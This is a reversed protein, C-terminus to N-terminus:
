CKVKCLEKANEWYQLENWTKSSNHNFPIQKQQIIKVTNLRDVECGTYLYYITDPLVYRLNDDSITASHCKSDVYRTNHITRIGDSITNDGPLIFDDLQPEVYIMFIKNRIDAPPDVFIADTNFHDYWKFHHQLQPSGRQFIGNIIDFDGSIDRNSSDLQILLPNDYKICSESLMCSKSLAIGIKQNYQVEEEEEAYSYEILCGGVAFGIAGFIVSLIITKKWNIQRNKM